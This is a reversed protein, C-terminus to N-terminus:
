AQQKRRVLGLGALGLGILALTGPEPVATAGKWIVGTPGGTNEVYFNLRGNAAVLLDGTLAIVDIIKTWPRNISYDRSDFLVNGRSRIQLRDDYSVFLSDIIADTGTKNLDQEWIRWTGLTNWTGNPQIWEAGDLDTGNPNVYSRAAWDNVSCNKCGDDTGSMFPIAHAMSASLSLMMLATLLKIMKM